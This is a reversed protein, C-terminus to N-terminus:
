QTDFYQRVFTLAKEPSWSRKTRISSARLSSPPRPPPCMQERTKPWWGQSKVFKGKKYVKISQSATFPPSATINRITFLLAKFRIVSAAPLCRNVTQLVGGHQRALSHLFSGSFTRNYSCNLTMFAWMLSSFDARKLIVATKNISEVSFNLGDFIVLFSGNIIM